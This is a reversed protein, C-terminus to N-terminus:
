RSIKWGLILGVILAILPITHPAPYIWLGLTIWIINWVIIIFVNTEVFLRARNHRPRLLNRFFWVWFAIGFAFIASGVWLRLTYM